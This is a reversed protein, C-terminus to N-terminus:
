RGQLIQRLLLRLLPTAAALGLEVIAEALRERELGEPPDVICHWFLTVLEALRLEGAAAREVLTFLSGLEDEARVLAAFSPRLTLAEGGVSLMAEGRAVNAPGSM